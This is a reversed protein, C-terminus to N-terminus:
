PREGPSAPDQQPLETGGPQADSATTGASTASSEQPCAWRQINPSVMLIPLLVPAGVVGLLITYPIASPAAACARPDGRSCDEIARKQMKVPNFIDGLARAAAEFHTCDQQETALKAEELDFSAAIEGSPRGGSRMACGVLTVVMIGVCIKRM